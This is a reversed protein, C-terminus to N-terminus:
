KKVWGGKTRILISDIILRGDRTVALLNIGHIIHWTYGGFVVHRRL